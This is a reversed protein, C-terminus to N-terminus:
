DIVVMSELPRTEVAVPNTRDANNKRYPYVTVPQGIEVTSWDVRANRIWESATGDVIEGGVREVDIWSNQAFRLRKLDPM